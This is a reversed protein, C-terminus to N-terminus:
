VKESAADVSCGCLLLDLIMSLLFRKKQKALMLAKLMLPFMYLTM